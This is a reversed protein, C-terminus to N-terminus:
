RKLEEKSPHNHREKCTAPDGLSDNFYHNPLSPDYEVSVERAGAIMRVFLVLTWGGFLFFAFGFTLVWFFMVTGWATAVLYLYISFLIVWLLTEVVRM